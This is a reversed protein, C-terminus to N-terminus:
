NMKKLHEDAMQQHVESFGNKGNEHIVAAKEHENMDKFPQATVPKKVEQNNGMMKKHQEAMYQHAQSQGNKTSEHINAAEEHQDQQLKGAAIKNQEPSKKVMLQHAQASSNNVSEHVNGDSAAYASTAFVLAMATTLIIKKM